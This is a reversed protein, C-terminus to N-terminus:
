DGSNSEPAHLVLALGGDPLAPFEGLLFRRADAGLRYREVIEEGAREVPGVYVHENDEDFVVKTGPMKRQVAATITAERRAARPGPSYGRKDQDDAAAQDCERCEVVGPESKGRL